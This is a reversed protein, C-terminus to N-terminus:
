LVEYDVVVDTADTVTEEKVLVNEVGIYEDTSVKHISDINSEEDLSVYQEKKIDEEKIFVKKHTLNLFYM